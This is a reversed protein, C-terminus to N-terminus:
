HVPTCSHFPVPLPTFLSKFRSKNEDVTINVTEREPTAKKCWTKLYRDFHKCVQLAVASTLSIRKM